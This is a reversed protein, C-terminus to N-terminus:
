LRDGTVTRGPPVFVPANLSIACFQKQPVIGVGQMAGASRESRAQPKLYRNKRDDFCGMYSLGLM